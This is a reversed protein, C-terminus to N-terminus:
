KAPELREHVLNWTFIAGYIQFIGCACFLFLRFVFDQGVVKLLSQSDIVLCGTVFVLVMAGLAWFMAKKSAPSAWYCYAGLAMSLINLLIYAFPITSSEVGSVLYGMSVVLGLTSLFNFGFGLAGLFFLQFKM